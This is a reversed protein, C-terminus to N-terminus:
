AQLVPPLPAEIVTFGPVVVVYITVTVLVVVPQVAVAVVVTVTLGRGAAVAVALGDAIHTAWLLTSTAVPPPVYAQVVPSVVPEM